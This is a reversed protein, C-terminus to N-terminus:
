CPSQPIGAQECDISSRRLISKHLYVDDLFRGLQHDADNYDIYGSLAVKEKRITRIPHCRCDGFYVFGLPLGIHTIDSVWVHEPCVVEVAMRATEQRHRASPKGRATPGLVIRVILLYFTIREENM